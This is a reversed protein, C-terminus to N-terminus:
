DRIRRYGKMAIYNDRERQSYFHRGLGMDWGDSFEAKSKLTDISYLREVRRDCIPCRTSASDRCLVEQKGHEECFVDFLPM